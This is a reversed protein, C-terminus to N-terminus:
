IQTATCSVYSSCGDLQWDPRRGAPCGDYLLYLWLVQGNTQWLVHAMCQTTALPLSMCCYESHCLLVCISNSLNSTGTASSFSLQRM